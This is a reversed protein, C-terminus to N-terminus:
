RLSGFPLSSSVSLLFSNSSRALSPKPPYYTFIYPSASPLLFVLKWTIRASLFKELCGLCTMLALAFFFLLFFILSPLSLGVSFDLFHFPKIFQLSIPDKLIQLRNSYCFHMSVHYPHWYTKGFSKTRNKPM